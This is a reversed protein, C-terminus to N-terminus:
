LWKEIIKQTKPSQYPRYKSYDIQSLDAHEVEDWDTPTASLAAALEEDSKGGHPRHHKHKNKLMDLCLILTIKDDTSAVAEMVQHKLVDLRRPQSSYVAVPEAVKDAEDLKDPYVYPKVDM